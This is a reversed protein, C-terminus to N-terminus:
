QKRREAEGVAVSSFRAVRQKTPPHSSFYDLIRNGGQEGQSAEDEAENHNAELRNMINIFHSGDLNNRHVYELAHGDAETEFAQSFSAEVLLTPLALLLSSSTSVDGTVVVLVIALGSDQVLRRLSHRHVVHGVEHAMITVLEDDNESLKIIEDTFVITGDPLAFANAGFANGKRFALQFNYASDEPLVKLMKERLARRRQTPLESESFAWEDLLKLTGSGVSQSVSAPLSFAITKSLAPIGFQIFGWSCLVVIVLTVLVYKLRSELRHVWRSAGRAPLKAEILDVSDNDQTEFRRGEPLDIFRPTNGIRPSIGLDTLAVELAGQESKLYLDGAPNLHLQAAIQRSSQGDYLLGEVCIM